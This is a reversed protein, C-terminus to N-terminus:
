ARGVASLMEASVTELARTHRTLEEITQAGARAEDATRSTDELLQQVATLGQAVTQAHRQDASGDSSVLDRLGGVSKNALDLAIAVEDLKAAGHGARTISEQILGATESAAQATRQALSRVENAVVAFGLGAEGARAAEVAANLALINTQFAIGDIVGIIKSIKESSSSVDIIASTMQELKAVTDSVATQAEQALAGVTQGGQSQPQADVGAQKWNALTEELRAVQQAAREGRTEGLGSLRSALSAIGTVSTESEAVLSAMGALASRTWYHGALHVVLALAALAGLSAKGADLFVAILIAGLLAAGLWGSIAFRGRLKTGSSM